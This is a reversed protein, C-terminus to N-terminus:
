FNMFLSDEVFENNLEFDPFYLAENNPGVVTNSKKRQNEACSPQYEFLIDTRDLKNEIYQGVLVGCGDCEDNWSNGYDTFPSSNCDQATAISILCLRM